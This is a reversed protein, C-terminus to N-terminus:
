AVLRVHRGLIANPDSGDNCSNNITNTIGSNGSFEVTWSVFQACTFRLGANGNINLHTRPFYMAGGFTSTSTGNIHNANNNTPVARRDQYFLLGSYPGSSPATMNANAQANMTVRGIDTSTADSNSLIITCGTCSINANSGLDFNGGDIYYTASQLKLTGNVSMDSVCVVSGATDVTTRDVNGNNPVDLKNSNGKCPSVTPPSIGAYPDDQKVTFPLLEAGNWNNSAPVAGVAAVPSAFVDSSGTAIAATLSTSNTIMGCGLNIDGNGTATIGTAATNVLSVVCYVGTRITAATAGASITLQPLFMSSFAPIQTRTLEVRVPNAWGAAAPFSVAVDAATLPLGTANRSNPNNGSINLEYDVAQSATQSAGQVTAYVGALAASDAARQLQRKTLAWQVTDVALGASGIILPMAFGALILVNGRENRQLKKLLRLM